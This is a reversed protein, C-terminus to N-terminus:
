LAAEEAHRMGSHVVCWGWLFTVAQGVAMALAAGFIRVRPLPTLLAVLLLQVLSGALTGTLARRQLGLGTIMGYQVQQLGFLLATPAMLRLLPALASTQYLQEALFDALAWLGATSAIGIATGGLYLQRVLPRLREPSAERGSIAPAAVMSIASTVIGPLMMLPMAMGNLMGYQATAAAATLGSRRLCVPMLVASVARMGTACLRSLVTPAALSTLEKQLARSPAVRSPPLPVSHRFLLLATLAAASEAAGPLAATMAISRGRLMWLLAVALLFRVGQEVCENRAPLSAEGQGYCYGSYVAGFGLLAICPLSVLLSPLVRQDGLLLALLPSLALLAPTLWLALRKVLACGARLVEPRDCAPRQATLRSMAAPLGATVPTLALMDVAHAMEMVGLAEAGMWRALLLHMCFGVARTAGNALTLATAQKRISGTM